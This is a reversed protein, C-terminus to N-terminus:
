PRRYAPSPHHLSFVSITVNALYCFRGSDRAGIFKSIAAILRSVRRLKEREAVRVLWEKMEQDV